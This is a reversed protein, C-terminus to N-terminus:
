LTQPRPLSGPLLLGWSTAAPPRVERPRRRIGRVEDDWGEDGRAGIKRSRGSIGGRAERISVRM